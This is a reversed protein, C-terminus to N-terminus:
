AQDVNFHPRRCHLCEFLYATPGAERHLSELLELALSWTIKMEFLIHNLLLSERDPFDRRLETLGVPTLFATADGCCMPWQEAQWSNYGPTRRCLQDYIEESAETDLAEDDVFLADFKAAASGDAICWPCLANDLEHVSYVPGCYIYGRATGCCRCLGPSKVVSGSRIPDPHYRFSPLMKM